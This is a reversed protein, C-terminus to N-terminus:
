FVFNVFSINLYYEKIGRLVGAAGTGIIDGVQEGFTDVEGEGIINERLAQGFTQGQRRIPAIGTLDSLGEQAVDPKAADKSSYKAWPAKQDQKPSAYKEWPSAM